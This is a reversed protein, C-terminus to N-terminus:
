AKPTSKHQSDLLHQRHVVVSRRTHVCLLMFNPTIGHTLKRGHVTHSRAIISAAHTVTSPELTRPQHLLAQKAIIKLM